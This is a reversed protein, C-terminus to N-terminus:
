EKTSKPLTINSPSPPPTNMPPPDPPNSRGHFFGAIKGLLVKIGRYIKPLLWITLMIFLVMAIIFPVPHQLSAWIGAIVAVDEGISLAWNTFPEPSTNVMIRTGAKTFHSGAALTGGLILGIAEAEPGIPAIARAALIAGAPIRIFTHLVDWGTDVGPIKDAFFEVFYMFGAAMVIPPSALMQLDPPLEISGTNALIGLTAVTAYLNIGSAWAIGMTSAIVAIYNPDMDPGLLSDSFLLRGTQQEQLVPVEAM